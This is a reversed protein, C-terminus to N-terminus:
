TSSDLSERLKRLMNGGLIDAIDDEVYGRDRLADGIQWLDSVTDFEAPTSEVGFGGDFDSGIGAHKASGTIQCIYDIADIVTSMTIAHKGDSKVWGTRLFRNYLVVGMVGDREGLKRILDDTLHRDSDCFRRPNSHSAIVVGEYSDLAEHCAQEALHSLDLITNFNAMVDLLERGLSTLPGPVGTGGAYRTASWSPGVIRVGREHWLEFQTPEIIPDAGEMLVVLGQQRETTKVNPEWTALVADLDTSNLVLKLRHDEDALRHYYDLQQSALQHAEEATSYSLSRWEPETRSAPAVFLTAFVLAVRGALAEPLGIIAQQGSPGNNNTAEEKRKKLASTRYDRGYGLYNFALDQHADVVFM